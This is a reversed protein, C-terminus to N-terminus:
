NLGLRRKVENSGYRSLYDKVSGLYESKTEELYELIDFISIYSLVPVGTSKTFLETASVGDNVSECRDLLIYCGDISVNNAAAKILEVAEQKTEGTTLVDETIIVHDNDKISGVVKASLGGKTGEGHDKVEKRDYAYRVNRGYSWLSSAAASSLTIGKYAPGFILSLERPSDHRQIMSAFVNGIYSISEGDDYNGANFFMPSIRGSKLRFEGFRLVDKRISFEIFEKKYDDM